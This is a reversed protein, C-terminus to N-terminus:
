ATTATRGSVQGRDDKPPKTPDYPKRGDGFDHDGVYVFLVSSLKRSSKDFFDRKRLPPLLLRDAYPKPLGLPRFRCDESGPHKNFVPKLISILATEVARGTVASRFPGAIEL